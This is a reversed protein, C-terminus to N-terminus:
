PDPVKVTPDPGDQSLAFGGYAMAAGLAVGLWAGVALLEREALLKALLLGLVVAGAVLHLQELRPLGPVVKTAVVHVAMAAALVGAAIGFVAHPSQVGTRELHFSPLDLGLSGTDLRYRHWPLAGLDVALLAAAVVM